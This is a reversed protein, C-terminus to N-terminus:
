KEWIPAFRAAPLSEQLHNPPRFATPSGTTYLLVTGIEKPPKTERFFHEAACEGCDVLSIGPVTRALESQFRAFHTCGLIVTDCEAKRFPVTVSLLEEESPPANQEAATVLNPAAVSVATISPSLRHLAREYAGSQISARTALIGVRGNKTISAARLAVPAIVGFLPFPPDFIRPLAVSSATGCAFLLASVGKKKFFPLIEQLYGCIEAPAKEGYPLHRTDALYCFDAYPALARLHALAFLGGTGSDFVGLM